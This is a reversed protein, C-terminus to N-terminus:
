LIKMPNTLSQGVRSIRFGFFLLIRCLDCALGLQDPCNVTIITPDGEKEAAKFIVVDDQLIGM